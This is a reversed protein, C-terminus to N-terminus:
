PCVRKKVVKLNERMLSSPRWTYNNTHSGVCPAEESPIDSM